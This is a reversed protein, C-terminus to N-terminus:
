SLIDYAKLADWDFQVGHGPFDPAIITGEIIKPPNLIFRELGFGHVELYSANPLAALLHLHLEHVDHTSDTMTYRLPIRFHKTEINQITMFIDMPMNTTPPKLWM